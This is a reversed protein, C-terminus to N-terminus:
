IAATSAAAAEDDEQQQRARLMVNQQNGAITALGLGLGKLPNHWCIEGTALDLCFLEGATTAYIGTEDQVVNVFDSGKLKTRWVEQGTACDIALVTGKIGIFIVNRMDANHCRTRAAVSRRRIRWM